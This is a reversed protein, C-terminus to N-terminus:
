TNGVMSTLINIDRISQGLQCSDYRKCITPFFTWVFYERERIFPLTNHYGNLISSRNYNSM